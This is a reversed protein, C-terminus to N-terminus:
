CGTVVARYLALYKEIEGQPPLEAAVTQEGRHGLSLRFAPDTILREAKELFDASSTYLLGNEGDRIISRNGEIDSALVAVGKSMAELVANSMGGESLSSNLVVDVTELGACIRGHEVEGLYHSWPHARLLALVRAGEEPEIIPGALVYRVEPHRRWLAELPPVVTPINKVRRVGAPQLFIFDGPALGCQARLDVTREPCRVAQGIVHLRASLHPAEGGVKDRISGHFVVVARAAELIALVAPRREPDFLDHNADTGTLTVVLPVRLAAAIEAAVRGGTSAHFGHVVDPRFAAVRARISEGDERDLSAVEVAVGEDAIGSQIRQVTISNGRVSPFFHPTVLALRM